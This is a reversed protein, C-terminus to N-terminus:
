HGHPLPTVRIAMADSVRIAILAGLVCVQIPDQMPARGMVEAVQGPLMGVEMLRRGYPTHDPLSKIVVKTGIPIDALTQVGSPRPPALASAFKPPTTSM